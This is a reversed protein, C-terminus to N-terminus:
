SAKKFQKFQSKSKKFEEYNWSWDPHALVCYVRYSSGFYLYWILALIGGMVTFVVSDPFHNYDIFFTLGEVVVEAILVYKLYNIFQQSRYSKFLLLTAVTTELLKLFYFPLTSIVFLTYLANDQWASPQYNELSFASALFLVVIGVYTQVYYYFLWGGIKRRRTLYVIGLAVWFWGGFATSPTRGDSALVVSTPFLLAVDVAMFSSMAQQRIM